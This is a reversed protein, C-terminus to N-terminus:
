IRNIWESWSESNEVCDWKAAKDISLSWKRNLLTMDAHCPKYVTLMHLVHRIQERTMKGCTYIDFQLLCKSKENHLIKAVPYKWFHFAVHSTKIPTIATLGENFKPEKMYYVRPEDLPAMKIDSILKKVFDSMAAKDGEEPCTITEIRLLLHHHQILDDQVKNKLTKNRRASM